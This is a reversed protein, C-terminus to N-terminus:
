KTESFGCAVAPNVWCYFFCSKFRPPQLSCAAMYEHQKINYIFTNHPFVSCKFVAPPPCCLHICYADTHYLGCSFIVTNEEYIELLQQYLSLFRHHTDTSPIWKVERITRTRLVIGATIEETGRNENKRESLLWSRTLAHCTDGFHTRLCYRLANM